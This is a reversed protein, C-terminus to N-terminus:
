VTALISHSLIWSQYHPRVLLAPLSDSYSPLMMQGCSIIEMYRWRRQTLPSPCDLADTSRWATLRVIWKDKPLPFFPEGLDGLTGMRKTQKPRHELAMSHRANRRTAEIWQSMVEDQPGQEEEAEEGRDTRRGSERSRSTLM